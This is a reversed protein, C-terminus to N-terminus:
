GIYQKSLESLYESSLSMNLELASVRKTLKIFITEQLFYDIFRTSFDIIM